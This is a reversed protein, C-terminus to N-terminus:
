PYEPGESRGIGSDGDELMVNNPQIPSYGLLIEKRFPEPVKPVM